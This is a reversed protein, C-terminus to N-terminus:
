VGVGHEGTLTGGHEVAIRYLNKKIDPVIKKWEDYDMGCKLVDIHVNGDGAHGFMASVLGRSNFFNKVGTLFEPIEARPVVTDESLFVRSEHEIAERISRRVKWLRERQNKASAAYVRDDDLHIKIKELLKMIEDESDGDLQILILAGADPFPMEEKLFKKVFRVADEDMFEIAAPVIKELILKSVLELAEKITGFPVLLDLVARPAPVLKLYIKTIVALTGESGTLIGALNYGTANKVIKGGTNMITGDPLVFELGLVYDRTTGYKVARPGGAGEAVNGGISCSDLSAPDPPYMLGSELAAEQLKGTILGPEVVAVMNHRDIEIVRNMMELSLVVGGRVPVAGGTVGTGAGRPTVPVNFRGCVKFVRSVDEASRARVVIDPECCLDSTEDRSYKELIDLDTVVNDAGIEGALEEALKDRKM